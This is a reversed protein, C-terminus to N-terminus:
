PRLRVSLATALDHYGLARAVAVSARNAGLTQYHLIAGDALRDATLAAVVAAGYGRGRWAPHTIVGVSVVGAGDDPASAAAVLEGSQELVFIPSHDPQIASDAWDQPPCSAILRELAPLDAPAIRRVYPMPRGSSQSPPPRFTSADVYGQYSPGIIREILAGLAAHWLAPDRLAGITQGAVAAQAAAVWEPPASIIAVEDMLWAYIGHYDALRPGHPKVLVQSRLLDALDCDLRWAVQTWIIALSAPTLM